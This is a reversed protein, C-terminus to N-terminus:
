GEQEPEHGLLPRIVNGTNTAFADANTANITSTQAGQAPTM